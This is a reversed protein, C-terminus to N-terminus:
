AAKEIPEVKYLTLWLGGIIYGVHAAGGSVKDVYMKQAKSKGLIELLKTRPHNGLDHYYQGYQDRAMTWTM